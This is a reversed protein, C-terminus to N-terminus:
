NYIIMMVFVISQMIIQIILQQYDVTGFRKPDIHTLFEVDDHLNINFFLNPKDATAYMARLNRKSVCWFASTGRVAKGIALIYFSKDISRDNL